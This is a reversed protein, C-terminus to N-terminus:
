LKRGNNIYVGEPKENKRTKIDQREYKAPVNLRTLWDDADKDLLSYDEYNPNQLAAYASARKMKLKFKDEVKNM